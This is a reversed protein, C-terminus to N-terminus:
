PSFYILSYIILPEFRKAFEFQSIVIRFEEGNGDTLTLGRISCM